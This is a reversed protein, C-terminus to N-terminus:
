QATLGGDVVLEAGVMYSSDDGALFCVVSAIEEPRGIRGIPYRAIMEKRITEIDKAPNAGRMSEFLPTTLSTDILGPYVSNVRIGYGRKAFDLAIAKSFLRLGGKSASYAPM